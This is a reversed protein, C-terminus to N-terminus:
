GVMRNLLDACLQARHHWPYLLIFQNILALVSQGINLLFCLRYLRIFQNILALVSQGINLLFCLRATSKKRGHIQWSNKLQHQHTTGAKCLRRAECSCLLAKRFGQKAATMFGGSALM